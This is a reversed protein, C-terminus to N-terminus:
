EGDNVYEWNFVDTIEENTLEVSLMKALKNTNLETFYKDKLKPSEINHIATGEEFFSEFAIVLPCLKDVKGDKKIHFLIACLIKSSTVIESMFLSAEIFAKQAPLDAELEFTSVEWENDITYRYVEYELKNIETMIPVIKKLARKRVRLLNYCMSVLIDLFNM